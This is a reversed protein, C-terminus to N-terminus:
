YEDNYRKQNLWTVLHAKAQRTRDLHTQYNRFNLFCKIKDTETLKNWTKESLEKKVKLDWLKWFAEFSIDADFKEIQFGSRYKPLVCWAELMIRENIPFNRGGFLWMAQQPTQVGEEIKFERIHGNLDYKFLLVIDSARSKARYTTLQEM